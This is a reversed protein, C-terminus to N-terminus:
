WKGLRQCLLQLCFASLAAWFPWSLVILRMEHSFHLNRLSSGALAAM